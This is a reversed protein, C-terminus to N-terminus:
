IQQAALNALKDALENYHNGSHGKMWLLTVNENRSLLSDIAKWLDLNKVEHRGRNKVVWGNKKWKEMWKTVGLQVYKSDTFITVPEGNVHELAKLLATLEMRNSTTVPEHGSYTTLVQRSDVQVFCWGGAGGPNKLCAGDIYIKM